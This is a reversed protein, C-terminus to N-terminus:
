GSPQREVAVLVERLRPDDFPACAATVLGRTARQIQEPTLPETGYIEVARALQVDPDVADLLGHILQRLPRGGAATEVRERQGPELRRDLRALRGALSTLTDATQQAATQQAATRQAATRQAADHAGRAVDQVLSDFPVGHKRELPRSDTDDHECVGVADVIVFHTKCAATQQAATQQAVGPTVANLDAPLIARAGRGKMQEFYARSRVDRMFVLCELPKLDTGTAVTDVTVAIRPHCAKRFRAIRDEVAEGDEIPNKDAAEGAARHVLSECFADGRDFTERVIRVIDGAHAEDRAFILTKPVEERGPFIETFLRDRFTRIVARIHDEDVVDRDLRRAAREPGEDLLAWRAQRPLGDQRDTKGDDDKGGEDGTDGKEVYYGAEVAVKARGGRRTTRAHIRYVDYGVSVGDAVAREHGYEAVLNRDFFDLPERSPTTVLGILFADFYALVPRWQDYISRHCEDIVIFDFTEIPFQPNYAVPRPRAYEPAVEFMSRAERGADFDPDGTLVAYLRQITAITVRCALDITNSTLHQIPYLETFRRGDYPTVYQHFEGLAQRGLHDRDVLFLVRRAGAFKILRYIFTVAAYTKGSGAAMQILARPRAHALSKELSAIAEVQCDWLGATRLPPMDCLRERLTDGQPYVLWDCLTGPQHFTFVRRPYYGPDREDRFFTEVGTSEYAFALPFLARPVGEPLGILYEGPQEAVGGPAAGELRTQILGVAKRDVFLLYDARGSDMPFRRVAVGLEAGLDLQSVDQVRWGAAELLADIRQRAEEEPKM